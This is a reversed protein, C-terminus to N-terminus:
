PGLIPTIMSQKIWAEIGHENRIHLMADTESFQAAESDAENLDMRGDFKGLVEVVEGERIAPNDPGKKSRRRRLREGRIMYEAETQDKRRTAVLLQVAYEEEPSLPAVWPDDDPLFGAVESKLRVKESHQQLM